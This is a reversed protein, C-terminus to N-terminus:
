INEISKEVVKIRSNGYYKTLESLLESDVHVNRNQPLRKMLKEKACYIVVSDKGESLKLIEYLKKEEAFFAAKDPFQIWLDCTTQEFPIIAECILKSANDDEESVRGKVFVKTDENLYARNKDYDKPFVVVEVTGLLDEITIFAMTKSNKTHKITKSTIMGGVIERAGERVKTRGTEEDIQFDLTTASINKRWKAEYEQMPHGSIYIGLVEKEFALMTEKEYEGVNPLPIEFEKKQDDSVM